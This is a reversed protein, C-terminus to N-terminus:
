MDKYRWKHKFNPDVKYGKNQLETVIMSVMERKSHATTLGYNPFRRIIDEKNMNWVAEELSDLSHGKKGLYREAWGPDPGKAAQAARKEAAKASRAAKEAAKEAAQKKGIEPNAIVEAMHLSDEMQDRCYQKYQDLTMGWEEAEAKMEAESMQSKEKFMEYQQRLVDMAKSESEDFYKERPDSGGGSSGGGLSKDKPKASMDTRGEIREILKGDQQKYKQSEIMVFADPDLGEPLLGRWLVHSPSLRNVMADFGERVMRRDTDNAMAGTSSCAVISRRPDGDFCWSWSSEYSWALSPIVTLGMDQWLRGVWHSRYHNYYRIANPWNDYISFDPTCVAGYPRLMEGYREPDRWVREFQYDDLWFHIGISEKLRDPVSYAYNFPLWRLSLVREDRVPRLVPTDLPGETDFGCYYAKNLNQRDRTARYRPM